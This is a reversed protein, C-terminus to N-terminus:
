VSVECQRTCERKKASSENVSDKHGLFIVLDYREAIIIGIATNIVNFYAFYM